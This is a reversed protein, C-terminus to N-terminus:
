TFLDEYVSDIQFGDVGAKLLRAVDERALERHAHVPYRFTNIAPIVLAGNQQLEPVIESPLGEPLGFWFKRQLPVSVGDRVKELEENTVRFLVKDGLHKRTLRHGSITITARTLSHMELLESIRQCFGM